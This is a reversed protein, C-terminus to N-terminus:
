YDEKLNNEIRQKLAKTNEIEELKENIMEQQNKIQANDDFPNKRGYKSSFGMYYVGLAILIVVLLEILGFAKKMM